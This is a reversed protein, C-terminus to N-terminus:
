GRPEPVALVPTPAIHLLRQTVSGLLLGGVPSHGRTGVVILDAGQEEAIESIRHAPGGLSADGMEVTVDLGGARLEEAQREVTAKIEAEDVHLDGGGKGIVHETVHILVLAAGDRKALEAALPVARAAGDSGDSAVVIKKFM